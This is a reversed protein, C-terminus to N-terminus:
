RMGIRAWLTPKASKQDNSLEKLRLKEMASAFEMTGTSGSMYDAVFGLAEKPITDKKSNRLYKRLTAFRL